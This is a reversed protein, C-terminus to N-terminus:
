LRRRSKQFSIAFHHAYDRIAILAKGGKTKQNVLKGEAPLLDSFIREERKAISATPAANFIANV